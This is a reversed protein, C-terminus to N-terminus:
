KSTGGGPASTGGTKIITDFFGTFATLKAPNFMAYGVLLVLAYIWAAGRDIKDVLAVTFGVAALIVADQFFSTGM